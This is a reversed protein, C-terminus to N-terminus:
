EDRTAGKVHILFLSEFNLNIEEMFIPNLKLLESKVTSQEGKIVVEAYKNNKFCRIVEFNKFLSEDFDYDFALQYQKIRDMDDMMNGITKIHHGDIIAYSDCIDEFERLSHSTIVITTNHELKLDFLENKFIHRTQPDLGDFVEDLILYKPKIAFAIAIFIKRRMGKSCKTLSKDLELDFLDIYRLFAEQDFDYNAEYIKKVSKANQNMFYYPDDPLFFIDKKVSIDKHIDLGDYLIKGQTPYYIGALMRLLTSKGAGNIGILGFIDGTKITIDVNELVKNKDFSKTLGNISIM